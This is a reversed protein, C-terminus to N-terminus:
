KRGEAGPQLKREEAQGVLSESLQHGRSGEGRVGKSGGCEERPDDQVNTLGKITGHM